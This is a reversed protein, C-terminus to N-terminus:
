RTLRTQLRMVQKCVQKEKEKKNIQSLVKLNNHSALGFRNYTLNRPARKDTTWIIKRMLPATHGVTM